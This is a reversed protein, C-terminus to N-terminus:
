LPPSSGHVDHVFRARTEVEALKTSAYLSAETMLRKVEDEPLQRLDELAYGKSRLYEAILKKELPAYPDEMIPTDPNETRM